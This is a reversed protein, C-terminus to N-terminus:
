TAFESPGSLKLHVNDLNASEELKVQHPELSFGSSSITVGLGSDDTDGSCDRSVAAHPVFHRRRVLWKSPM